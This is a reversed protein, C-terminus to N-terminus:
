GATELGAQAATSMGDLERMFRQFDEAQHQRFHQEMEACLRSIDPYGYSGAAGKLRHALTALMDWDLREHAQRLEDSRELLGAVFEEVVDRLDADELLLQSFLKAQRSPEPASNM